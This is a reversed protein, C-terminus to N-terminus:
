KKCCVTKMVEYHFHLTERRSEEGFHFKTRELTENGGFRFKEKHFKWKRWLLTGWFGWNWKEKCQILVRIKGLKV